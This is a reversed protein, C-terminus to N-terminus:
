RWVSERKAVEDHTAWVSRWPRGSARGSLNRSHTQLSSHFLLADLDLCQNSGPVVPEGVPGLASEAISACGGRKSSARRHSAHEVNTLVACVTRPLNAALLVRNGGPGVGMRLMSSVSLGADEEPLPTKLVGDEGTRFDFWSACAELEEWGRWM